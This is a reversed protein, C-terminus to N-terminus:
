RGKVIRQIPQSTASASQQSLTAAEAKSAGSKSAADASVPSAQKANDVPIKNESSFFRTGCSAVGALALMEQYTCGELNFM